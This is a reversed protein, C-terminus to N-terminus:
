YDEDLARNVESDAIQQKSYERPVHQYLVKKFDHELLKAKTFLPLLIVSRVRYSGKMQRVVLESDLRVIVENHTHKSAAKLGEILGTYEAVNNTTIGIVKGSLVVENYNQDIIVYGFASKGPNGRSGGDAHLIIPSLM